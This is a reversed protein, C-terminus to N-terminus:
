ANEYCISRELDRGEAVVHVRWAGAAAIVAHTDSGNARFPKLLLFHYM